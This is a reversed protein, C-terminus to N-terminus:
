KLTSFNLIRKFKINKKQKKNLFNKNIKLTEFLQNTNKIKGTLM